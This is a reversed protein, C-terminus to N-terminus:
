LLNKLYEKIETEKANAFFYEKFEARNITDKLFTQDITKIIELMNRQTIQKLQDVIKKNKQENERREEPYGGGFNTSFLKEFIYNLTIDGGWGFGKDYPLSIANGANIQSFLYADTPTEILGCEVNPFSNLVIMVGQGTGCGTVVFDAASSNLLIAGLLGAQVYSLEKDEINKMGYNYLEYQHKDCINKLEKYVKEVQSTANILAIKM